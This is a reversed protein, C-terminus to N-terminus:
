DSRFDLWSIVTLPKDKDTTDLEYINACEWDTAVWCWEKYDYVYEM